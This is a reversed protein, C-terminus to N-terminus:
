EEIGLPRWVRVWEYQTKRDKLQAREVRSNKAPVPNWDYTEIAMHIFAPVDWEVNPYLTYIHEGDLYFLVESASKWWAGYVYFKKHNPTKLSHGKQNMVSEPNYANVRHILNSHYIRDWGDAWPEADPSIVGVCEQIDTELKKITNGKTMLWFTSSMETKNAKMKCEYYWGPQGAEISRVIAGQYLYERGRVERPKPLKSVTVTLKGDELSVNEPLFLGPPRGIWSWGNGRPEIQWKDEDIRKGEFEDSLDEVLEWDMKRSLDKAYPGSLSDDSVSEEIMETADSVTEESAEIATKNFSALYNRQEPTVQDAFLRRWESVIKQSKTNFSDMNVEFIRKDERRIFVKEESVDLIQVKVARNDVSELNHYAHRELQLGSSSNLDETSENTTTKSDEPSGASVKVKAASEPESVKEVSEVLPQPVVEDETQLASPREEVFVSEQWYIYLGIGAPILISLSFILIRVRKLTAPQIM